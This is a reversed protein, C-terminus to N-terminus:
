SVDLPSLNERPDNSLNRGADPKSPYANLQASYKSVRNSNQTSEARKRPQTKIAEEDIRPSQMMKPSDSTPKM